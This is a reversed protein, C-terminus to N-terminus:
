KRFDSILKNTAKEKLSKDQAVKDRTKKIVEDLLSSNLKRIMEEKESEIKLAADRELRQTDEKIQQKMKQEYTESDEEAEQHIKAIESDLQDMKKEYMGLKIEAEKDKEEAVEYIQQVEVANNTFYNSIPKKLRWILFGFLLFFNVAPWLLDAVSGGAHGGDGAAFASTVILFSLLVKIM